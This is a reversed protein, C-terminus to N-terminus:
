HHRQLTAAGHIPGSDSTALIEIRSGSVALHDAPVKLRWNASAGALVYGLLGARVALRQGAANVLEIDSIRVRRGSSNTARLRVGDADQSIAWQLDGVEPVFDGFFVPISYRVVFNIQKGNARQIDPLEDVLVRYSEERTIAQNSTRIIRVIQQANPTLRAMPPSVVVDRTPALQEKGDVQSWRFVRFQVNVSRGDLNQLTIQAARVQAPAEILVPTIRISSTHGPTAVTAFVAALCAKLLYRRM